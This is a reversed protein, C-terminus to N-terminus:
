GAIRPCHHHDKNRRPSNGDLAAVEALTAKKIYNEPHAGKRKPNLYPGELHLGLFNGKAQPRYAKAAAIGAEVVENSNTAITAMFGTCGQSLLTIEM